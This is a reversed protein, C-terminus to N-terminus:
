FFISFFNFSIFGIWCRSQRGRRGKGIFGVQMGAPVGPDAEWLCTVTPLGEALVQQPPLDRPKGARSKTCPLKKPLSKSHPLSSIFSPHSPIHSFNGRPLLWVMHMGIEPRAM